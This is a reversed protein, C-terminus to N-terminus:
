DEDYDVLSPQKPEEQKSPVNVKSLLKQAVSDNTGHYRDKFNQKQLEPDHNPEEHKYPCESGRTCKGKLFFSCYHPENRKFYPASRGLKQVIPRLDPKMPGTNSQANQSSAMSELTDRAQVPIGYDLDLLCTQCVHKAKACSQCIETKKYRANRGPRWRFVTFPRACIKCEKDYEARSMRVYPNEGLCTECIIPFETSEWGQQKLLTGSNVSM